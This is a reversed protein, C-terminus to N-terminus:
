RAHGIVGNRGLLPGVRAMAVAPFGLQERSAPQNPAAPSDLRVAPPEAPV